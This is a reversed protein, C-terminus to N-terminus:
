TSKKHVRGLVASSTDAQAYVASTHTLLYRENMPKISANPTNSTNSPLPASATTQAALVGTTAAVFLSLAIGVTTISKTLNMRMNWRTQGLPRLHNRRYRGFICRFPNAVIARRLHITAFFIILRNLTM